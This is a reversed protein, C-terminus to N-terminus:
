VFQSTIAALSHEFRDRNSDYEGMEEDDMDRDDGDLSFAGM